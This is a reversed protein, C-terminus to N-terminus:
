SCSTVKPGPERDAHGLSKLCRWANCSVVPGADQARGERQGRSGPGPTVEFGLWSYPSLVDYFLEVTRPLPGMASSFRAGGWCLHRLNGKEPAPHCRGREGGSRLVAERGCRAAEPLLAARAPHAPSRRRLPTTHPTGLPARSGPSRRSEGQRPTSDPALPPPKLHM